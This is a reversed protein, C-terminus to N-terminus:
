AKEEGERAPSLRGPVLNMPPPMGPSGEGGVGPEHRANKAKGM